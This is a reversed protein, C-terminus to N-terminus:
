SPLARHAFKQSVKSYTGGLIRVWKLEIISSNGVIGSM